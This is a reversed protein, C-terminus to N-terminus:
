ATSAPSCRPPAPTSPYMRARTRSRSRTVGPHASSTMSIRPLPPRHAQTDIAQEFIVVGHERWYDLKARLDYDEPRAVSRCYADIDANPEDVWPRSRYWDQATIAM